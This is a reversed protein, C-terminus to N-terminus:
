NKEWHNPLEIVCKTSESTYMFCKKVLDSVDTAIVTPSDTVSVIHKLSRSTISGRPNIELLQVVALNKISCVCEGFCVCVRPNYQAFFQVVALNGDKLKVCSNDRSGCREYSKAYVCGWSYKVRSFFKFNTESCAFQLYSSLVEYEYLSLQHQHTTGVAFIGDTLQFLNKSKSEIKSMLKVFLPQNCASTDVLDTKLKSMGQLMSISSSVQSLIGASGHINRLLCGNMDEFHFCSTAWLPGLNEVVDCVHLHRHFNATCNELGYLTEFYTSFYSILSRANIMDKYTIRDQLLTHIAESLCLFHDYYPQPLTDKLVLPGYFLLFSRLESAKFHGKFDLSRPRREIESPLKVDKIKSDVSKIHATITYPNNGSKPFWLNLLQKMDGQLLKHMYDVSDGNIVDFSPLKSLESAGNIGLTSVGTEKALEANTMYSERSRKPASVAVRHPFVRVNGRGKKISMGEVECKHCGFFGNFQKTCYVLCKAPLDCSCCIMFCKCLHNHYKFGETELKLLKEVIPTLYTQMMPKKNACWVGAVVQNGRRFRKTPPLENISLYVPWLSVPSSKFLPVGDTNMVFSINNPNQLFQNGRYLKGDYIDKIVGPERDAFRYRRIDDWNGPKDFINTLQHEIDVTLFFPLNCGKLSKGCASCEKDEENLSNYCGPCFLHISKPTGINNFIQKLSAISTPLRNDPPCHLRILLLLQELALGSFLFLYSSTIVQDLKRFTVMIVQDLERFTVM